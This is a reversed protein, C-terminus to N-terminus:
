SFARGILETMVAAVLLAVFMMQFSVASKLKQAREENRPSLTKITEVDRKAIIFRAEEAPCNRKDGVMRDLTENSTVAYESTGAQVQMGYITSVVVTLFSVVLLGLSAPAVSSAFFHKSFFAAVAVAATLVTLNTQCVRAGRAELTEMRGFQLGRLGSIFEGFIQGSDSEDTM